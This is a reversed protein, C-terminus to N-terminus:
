TAAVKFTLNKGDPFPNHFALGASFAARVSDKAPLELMSTPEIAFAQPKDSPNRLVIISKKPSWAAWGYVELKEPDGGIWHSDRLVDKNAQSWKAMQAIDDWNQKTLLSPTIYMEQLQTGNGFYDRVEHRFAGSADDKLKDAYQAYILGHLM